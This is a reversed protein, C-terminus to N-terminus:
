LPVPIGYEPRPDYNYFLLEPVYINDGSNSFIQNEVCGIEYTTSTDNSGIPGFGLNSSFINGITVRYKGKKSGRLCAIDLENSIWSGGCNYPVSQPGPFECNRPENTFVGPKLYSWLWFGGGRGYVYDLPLNSDFRLSTESEQIYYGGVDGPPEPGGIWASLNVVMWMTPPFLYLCEDACCCCDQPLGTSVALMNLNSKLLNYENNNGPIKILSISNESM